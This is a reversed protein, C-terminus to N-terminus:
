VLISYRVELNVPNKTEETFLYGGDAGVQGSRRRLPLSFM